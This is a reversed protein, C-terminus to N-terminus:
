CLFRIDTVIHSGRLYIILARNLVCDFSYYCTLLFYIICAYKVLTLSCRIKMDTQHNNKHVCTCWLQFPLPQAM